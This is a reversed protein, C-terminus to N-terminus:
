RKTRSRKTKQKRAEQDSAESEPRVHEGESDAPTAPERPKRGRRAPASTSTPPVEGEEPATVAAALVKGLSKKGKAAAAQKKKEKATTLPAEEEESEEVAKAPTPPKSPKPPTEKRPTEAGKKAGISKTPGSPVTFTGLDIQLDDYVDAFTTDAVAAVKVKTKGITGKPRLKLCSGFVAAVGDDIPNKGLSPALSLKNYEKPVGPLGFAVVLNRIDNYRRGYALFAGMRMVMSVFAIDPAEKSPTSSLSVIFDLNHARWPKYLSLSPYHSLYGIFDGRGVVPLSKDAFVQLLFGKAVKTNVISSHFERNALYDSQNATASKQPDSALFSNAQVVWCGKSSKGIWDICDKSEYSSVAKVEWDGFVDFGFGVSLRKSPALKLGEIVPEFHRPDGIVLVPDNTKWEKKEVLRAVAESFKCAPTEKDCGGFAFIPASLDHTYANWRTTARYGRSKTLFLENSVIRKSAENYNPVIAKGKDDVVDWGFPVNALIRNHDKIPYDPVKNGLDNDIVVRCFWQVAPVSVDPKRSGSQVLMKLKGVYERMLSNYGTLGPLDISLYPPKYTGDMNDSSQAKPVVKVHSAFTYAAYCLNKGCPVLAHPRGSQASLHVLFEAARKEDVSGDVPVDYKSDSYRFVLQKEKGLEVTIYPHALCWIHFEAGYVQQTKAAKTSLVSELVDAKNALLEARTMDAVHVKNLHPLASSLVAAMSKVEELSFSLNNFSALVEPRIGKLLLKALVGEWATYGEAELEHAVPAEVRSNRENESLEDVNVHEDTVELDNLNDM